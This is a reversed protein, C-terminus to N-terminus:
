ENDTGGLMNIDFGYPDSGTIHIAEKLLAANNLLFKDINSDKQSMFKIALKNCRDVTEAIEELSNEGRSSIVYALQLFYGAGNIKGLKIILKVLREIQPELVGNLVTEMIGSLMDIESKYGELDLGKDIYRRILDSVTINEAAAKQELRRAMDQPVRITFRQTEDM